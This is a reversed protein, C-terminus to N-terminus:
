LILILMKSICKREQLFPIVKEPYSNGTMNPQVTKIFKGM